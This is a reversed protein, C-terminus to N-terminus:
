SGSFVGRSLQLMTEKEDQLNHSLFLRPWPTPPFAVFSLCGKNRRSTARTGRSASVDLTHTELEIHCFTDKKM